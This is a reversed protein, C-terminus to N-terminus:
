DSDRVRSEIADLIAGLIKQSEPADGESANYLDYQQLIEQRTLLTGGNKVSRAFAEVAKEREAVPLGNQSAFNILERQASPTGLQVLIESASDVFGPFYIMRTLQDEYAGFDYFPYVDRQGAIKALWQVAAIAQKQRDMETVPWPEALAELRRVQSVVYEPELSIPFALLLPDAALLRDVRRKYEPSRYVFGIPIRKTRFDSRLQQIL